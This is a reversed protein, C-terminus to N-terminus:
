GSFPVSLTIFKQFVLVKSWLTHMHTNPTSTYLIYSIHVHTHTHTHLPWWWRANIWDMKNFQRRMMRFLLDKQINKNTNEHSHMCRLFPPSARVPYGPDSAQRTAATRSRSGCSHATTNGPWLLRVCAGFTERYTCHQVASIDWVEAYDWCSEVLGKSASQLNTFQFPFTGNAFDALPAM